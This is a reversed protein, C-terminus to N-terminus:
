FIKTRSNLVVADFSFQGEQVNKLENGEYLKSSKESLIKNM